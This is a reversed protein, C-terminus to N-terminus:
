RTRTLGDVDSTTAVVVASASAMPLHSTHASWGHLANAARNPFANVYRDASSNPAARARASDVSGDGRVGASASARVQGAAVRDGVNVLREVMRGDIRFGINVETEAQITGTLTVITSDAREAVSVARVPRPEAAPAAPQQDCAALAGVLILCLLGRGGPHRRM